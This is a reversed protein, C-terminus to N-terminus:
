SGREQMAYIEGLEENMEPALEAVLTKKDILIDKKSNMAIIELLALMRDFKDATAGHVTAPAEYQSYTAAVIAGSPQAAYVRDTLAEIRYQMRVDDQLSATFATMKNRVKDANEDIALGFSDMVNGMIEYRAWKSPSAIGFFDKIAQKVGGFFGSIKERLWGDKDKIGNWLGEIIQGGLKIVDPIKNLITSIIKVICELAAGILAELAEPTTLGEVIGLTLDIGVDLLAPLNDLLGVALKTVIINTAAVLKEKNNGIEAILYELIGTVSDILQPLNDIISGGIELLIPIGSSILVPLNDTISVLLTELISGGVDIVTPLLEKIKASLDTIGQEIQEMGKETDGMFVSSLGDTIGTISPLLEASLRNKLGGATMQLTELSDCFAASATVAEQSMIMGYKEAQEYLNKLGEAGSNLMPTLEMYAKSGFLEIGKAARESEDSISAIQDIAEMLNLGSDGSALKKQATALVDMSAGSMSAAYSLKQYDEASIRLKQSGKDIVDGYEATVKALEYVSKGAAIGATTLSAVATVAAGIGAVALGGVKKAGDGIKNFANRLGETKKEAESIKEKVDQFANKIKNIGTTQKKLEDLEKNMKNLDAEANNLQIQWSRVQKSNEGYENKANELAKKLTEVKDKQSDVQKTLVESKSQLDKMSKGGNDFASATKNMESKLYGLNSNIEKIANKFEKEGDLGIGAGITKKKSSM